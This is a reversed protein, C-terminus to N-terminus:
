LAEPDFPLKRIRKGTAAFIANALAPAVPPLGPEGVGKIKEGGEALIHVEVQPMESMRLIPNDHFNSQEVKGNAFTIGNKTAATIGMVVAGEVQSKVNDPNVVTGLDIVVYVKDIKVANESTKSVEVVHGALGAFFDWQAIGRGRGKPLPTDWHSVERLKELVRRTDSDKTLMDMRFQLPDKGAQHALEDIFCEHAFALTTSTVARWYGLPFHVDALVFLNKLHPIEYAQSSIGETMTGDPKSKDREPELFASVTPSIVKHQFAVLKGDSSLAGKLASFTLPRFPGQQTDDERTWLIKVPKKITKALDTAELIFDLALRRGFGGGNFCTYITVNEEKLGYRGRLTEMADGPVQTSVWVELTKEDKWHATCNMAELPSHSVFPTEYLAELKQGTEAYVKDFDGSAHDVLGETKALERLQQAYDNSNFKENGKLDWEVKLVKRGKLAAWYNNAVVAVGTSKYTGYERVVEVVQEVGAVKLTLKKDFGKLAGGFVPCREVSAYVMGPVEVDIGFVARGSVKLPVDARQVSKGLMKFDAPDKLRPNQPAELKSATEVLDGYGLSKGSTRHFIKADQAYCESELVNWQRAAATLLMERASAGVKRLEQYSSRVSYSGGSFQLPGFRKEGGTQQVTYQGPSLELEEAILAPISQFTGQGMEPKTNFLTIKGTKEILVYPNLNFADELNSLNSILAPEGSKVSPIGLIFATASLGTFKLFDRRQINSKQNNSM